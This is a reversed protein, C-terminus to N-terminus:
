VLWNGFYKTRSINYYNHVLIAWFIEPPVRYWLWYNYMYICTCTTKEGAGFRGGNIDFSHQSICTYVWVRSAVCCYWDARVVRVFPWLQSIGCPQLHIEPKLLASIVCSNRVNCLHTNNYMGGCFPLTHATSSTINYMGSLTTLELSSYDFKSRGNCVDHAIM